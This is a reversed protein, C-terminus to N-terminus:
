EKPATGYIWHVGRTFGQPFTTEHIAGDIIEAKIQLGKYGRSGLQKAYAELQSRMPHRVGNSPTEESGVAFYVKAELKTEAKSFEREMEFIFKDKFWLSPSTLIYSSFLEPRELMVWAGFSGGLSQGSLTRRKSDTRYNTEVFPIIQSEIFDLYVPAGGTQYRVWDKDQVPTLDRVRSAMGNENQAFSIAVLIARDMKNSGGMPLHTVGSAVQFTYPGDNLYIVPYLRNAEELKSYGVPLKVYIDYERGSTAEVLTHVETSPISFAKQAHAKSGPSIFGFVFGLTLLFASCLKM